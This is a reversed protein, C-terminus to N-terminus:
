QTNSACRITQASLQSSQAHEFQVCLPVTCILQRCTYSVFHLVYPKFAIVALALNAIDKSVFLIKQGTLGAGVVTAVKAPDLLRFLPVLSVGLTPLHRSSARQIALVKPPLDDDSGRPRSKDALVLEISVHVGTDSSPPPRAPFPVNSM